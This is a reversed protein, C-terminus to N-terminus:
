VITAISIQQFKTRRLLVTLSLGSSAVCNFIGNISSFSSDRVIGLGEIIINYASTNQPASMIM